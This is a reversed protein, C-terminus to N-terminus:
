QRVARFFQKGTAADQQIQIGGSSNTSTQLLSWTKLDSSREIAIVAGTESLVTFRFTQGNLTLDALRVPEAPGPLAGDTRVMIDIHDPVLGGVDVVRVTANVPGSSAANFTLPLSVTLTDGDGGVKPAAPTISLANGSSAEATWFLKGGGRNTVTLVAVSNTGSLTVGTLSVGIAPEASVGAPENSISLPNPDSGDTLGDGDSDAALPDTLFGTAALTESGDSLGDGDTDRTSPSLGREFEALNSLGDGDPDAAADDQGLQLGYRREFADPLEDGDADFLAPALLLAQSAKSFSVPQLQDADAPLVEVAVHVPQPNDAGFWQFSWEVQAKSAGSAADPGPLVPIPRDFGGLLGVTNTSEAAFSVRAVLNTLPISSLNEVQARVIFTEAATSLHPQGTSQSRVDLMSVTALAPLATAKNEALWRLLSSHFTAFNEKLTLLAALTQNRHNLYEPDSRGTYRNLRVSAAVNLLHARLQEHNEYVRFQEELAGLAPEGRKNAAVAAAMQDIVAGSLAFHRAFNPLLGNSSVAHSVAINIQHNTLADTIKALSNSWANYHAQLNTSIVPSLPAMPLPAGEAFATVAAPPTQGYAKYVGRAMNNPLTHYVYVAAYATGTAYAALSGYKLGDGLFKVWKPGVSGVLSLVGGVSKSTKAAFELQILDRKAKAGANILEQLEAAAQTVDNLYRATDASNWQEMQLKSHLLLPTRSKCFSPLSQFDGIKIKLTQDFPFELKLVAENDFLLPSLSKVTSKLAEDLVATFAAKTDLRTVSKAVTLLIKEVTTLGSAIAGARTTEMGAYTLASQVVSGQVSVFKEMLGLAVFHEGKM